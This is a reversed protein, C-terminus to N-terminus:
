PLEALVARAVEVKFPKCYVFANRRGGDGGPVAYLQAGSLQALPGLELDLGPDIQNGMTDRSTLYVVPGPVGSAEFDDGFRLAVQGDTYRLLEGTGEGLHGARGTFSGRAFAMSAAALDLGTADVGALDAAPSAQALDAAPLLEPPRNDVFVADCGALSLCLILTSVRM